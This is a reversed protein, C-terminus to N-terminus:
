LRDRDAREPPQGGLPPASRTCMPPPPGRLWENHRCAQGTACRPSLRPIRRTPATVSLSTPAERTVGDLVAEATDRRERWGDLGPADTIGEKRRTEACDRKRSRTLAIALGAAGHLGGHAVRNPQSPRGHPGAVMLAGRSTRGAVVPTAMRTPSRTGLKPRSAERL